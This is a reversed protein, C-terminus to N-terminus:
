QTLLQLLEKTVEWFQEVSQIEVQEDPSHPNNILPGISVCELHPFIHLLLGCELGAHVAKIKPPVGYVTESAQKTLRLLTSDWAPKWGPYSGEFETSAKRATFITHMQDIVRQKAADDFSRILCNVELANSRTTIISTSSSTHVIGEEENEFQIVGKPCLSLAEIIATSIEHPIYPSNEKDLCYTFQIDSETTSSKQLTSNIYSQIIKEVEKSDKKEVSITATAERPIANRMNGGNFSVIHVTTQKNLIELLGILEENAHIRGLHIEFGSHGGVLGQIQITIQQTSERPPIKTFSWLINADIGGACGVTIENIEETDTNILYDATIFSPSLNKAGTMGTEEDVTFLAEIPGHEIDTSELIALIIAAGIGNDAGLTTGTAKVYDGVIIPRIPDTTFNHQLSEIKQPVMDVHAQLCVTKAQPNTTTAPKTICINGWEDKKYHLSKQKAFNCIHQVIKDEHKSPHPISCIDEFHKWVIQPNLQSIKPNM